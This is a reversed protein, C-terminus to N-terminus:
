SERKKQSFLYMSRGL